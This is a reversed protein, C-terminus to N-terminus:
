NQGKQKPSWGYNQLCLKNNDIETSSVPDLLHKASFQYNFMTPQHGELNVLATFQDVGDVLAKRTRRMDYLMKNEFILEYAREAMIEKLTIDAAVYTPLGAKNRIENIGAIIDADPVNQGLQDLTWNIETQMLLVDAWRYVPFNLGSIGSVKAANFDYFKYLFACPFKPAPGENVDYKSAINDNYYFYGSKDVLRLDAPNYSAHYAVAPITTGTETTYVTTHGSLPVTTNTIGNNTTGALYQISFIAGNKNNQAPTRLDSYAWTGYTSTLGALFDIQTKAKQLFSIAGPTNVPYNTMTWLGEVCYAKTTDTVEQYPYGAMTLYVDAMLIRAVHKTVRGTSREDVLASENVAFELDPVIVKDYITKLSVRPRSAQEIDTLVSTNLIVDGFKRVLVFYYLARLTRVEGLLKSKETESLGTVEPIKQIALNCDRVGRYMYNWPFIFYESDGSEVNTEFKYLDAAQYQSYAKGTAYELSNMVTGGWWQAGATWTPLARYAGTALAYGGPNSTIPAEDTLSGTPVEELFKDCSGLTIGLGLVLLLIYKM